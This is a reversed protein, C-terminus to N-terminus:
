RGPPRQKWWAEVHEQLRQLQAAQAKRNANTASMTGEVWDLLRWLEGAPIDLSVALHVGDAEASFRAVWQSLPAGSATDSGPLEAMSFLRCWAGEPLPALPLGIEMLLASDSAVRGHPRGGLNFAIDAPVM